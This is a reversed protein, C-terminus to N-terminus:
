DMRVQPKGRRYFDIMWSFDFSNMVNIKKVILIEGSTLALQDIPRLSISARTKGPGAMLSLVGNLILSYPENFRVATVASM